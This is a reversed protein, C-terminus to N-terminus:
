PHSLNYYLAASGFFPVAQAAAANSTVWDVGPVLQLEMRVSTQRLGAKAGYIGQVWPLNMWTVSSAKYSALDADSPRLRTEFRAAGRLNSVGGSTSCTRLLTSLVVTKTTGAKKLTTLESQWAADDSVAPVTRTDSPATIELFQNPNDPSPSYIVLERYLPLGTPNAPTGSPRWIVLTDPYRYAGVSEAVVICGPFQENAKAQCVNQAIRDLIVRAHQTAIGYGESYEFGQQATRALAGM